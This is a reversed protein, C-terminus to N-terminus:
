PLASLLREYNKQYNSTYDIPFEVKAIFRGSDIQEDIIQHVSIAMTRHGQRIANPLPHRGRNTYICGPHFNFLASFWNIHRSKFLLGFSAVIGIPTHWMTAELGLEDLSCVEIWKLNISDCYDKIESLNKKPELVVLIVNITNVITALVNVYSGFFIASKQKM